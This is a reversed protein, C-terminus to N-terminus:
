RILNPTCAKHTEATIEIEKLKMFDSFAESKLLKSSEESSQLEKVQEL